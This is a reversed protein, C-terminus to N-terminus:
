WNVCCSTRAAQSLRTTFRPSITSRGTGAFDILQPATFASYRHGAMTNLRWCPGRRSGLGPPYAEVSVPHRRRVAADFWWLHRTRADFRVPRGSREPKLARDAAGHLGTTRRGARRRTSAVCVPPPERDVTPM